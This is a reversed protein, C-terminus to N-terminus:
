CPREEHLQEEVVSGNRWERYGTVVLLLSPILLITVILIEIRAKRKFTPEAYTPVILTQDM